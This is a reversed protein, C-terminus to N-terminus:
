TDDGFLNDTKKKKSPAPEVKPKAAKKALMDDDTDSDGFLNDSKKKKPVEDPITTDKAEPEPKTTSDENVDISAKKKIAGVTIPGGKLTAPNINLNGFKAALKGKMKHKPKKDTKAEDNKPAEKMPDTPTPEPIVTKIPVSSDPKTTTAPEDDNDSDFLDKKPEAKKQKKPANLGVGLPDDVDDDDSDGFISKKNNNKKTEKKQKIVPKTEPVVTKVVPAPEPEPEPEPEPKNNTLGSLPDDDSDDDFVGKKTTEPIKPEQKM